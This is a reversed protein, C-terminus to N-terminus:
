LDTEKEDTNREGEKNQNVLPDPIYYYGESNEYYVTSETTIEEVKNLNLFSPFFCRHSSMSDLTFLDLSPITFVIMTTKKRLSLLKFNYLKPYFKNTLPNTATKWDFLKHFVLGLAKKFKM